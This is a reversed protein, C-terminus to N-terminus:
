KVREYVGRDKRKVTGAEIWRGIANSLDSSRKDKLGRVKRVESARFQKPLRALVDSWDIRRSGTGNRSSGNPPRTGNSGLGGALALVKSEHRKLANLEAEKSRIDQRLRFLLRHAQRTIQDISRFSNSKRRPMQGRVMLTKSGLPKAVVIHAYSFELYSELSPLRCRTELVILFVLHQGELNPVGPEFQLLASIRLKTAKENAWRRNRELNNEIRPDPSPANRPDDEQWGRLERPRPKTCIALIEGM